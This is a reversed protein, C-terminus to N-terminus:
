PAWALSCAIRWCSWPTATKAATVKEGVAVLEDPCAAAREEGGLGLHLGSSCPLGLGLGHKLIKDVAGLGYGGILDCALNQM